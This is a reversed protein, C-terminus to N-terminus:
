IVVTLSLKLTLFQLNSGNQHFDFEFLFADSLIFLINVLDRKSVLM